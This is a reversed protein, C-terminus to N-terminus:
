IRNNIYVLYIAYRLFNYCFSKEFNQMKDKLHVIKLHLIYQM